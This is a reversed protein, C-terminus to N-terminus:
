DAKTARYVLFDHDRRPKEGEYNGTVDIETFGARELLLILEDRFYMRDTLTYGEEAVVEGDRLRQVQLEYTITQDLPDIGLTRM